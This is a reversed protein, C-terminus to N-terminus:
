DAVRAWGEPTQEGQRKVQYTGPPFLLSEHTDFSRLHKLETPEKVAIFAEFEDNPNTYLDVTAADMVHHHGTESHTIIHEVGEAKSISFGEPIENVPTFLVDGQAVQGTVDKM